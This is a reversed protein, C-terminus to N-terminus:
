RELAERVTQEFSDCCTELTPRGEVNELRPPKDHEPCRLKLVSEIKERAAAVVEDKWNPNVNIEYGDSM